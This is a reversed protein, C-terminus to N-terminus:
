LVRLVGIGEEEELELPAGTWSLVQFTVVCEWLCGLSAPVKSRNFVELVDKDWEWAEETISALLM